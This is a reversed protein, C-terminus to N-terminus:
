SEDTGGSVTVVGDGVSTVVMPPSRDDAQPLLPGDVHWAYPKWIGLEPVPNELCQREAAKAEQWSVGRSELFRERRRQQRERKKNGM